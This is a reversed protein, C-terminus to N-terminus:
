LWVKFGNIVLWCLQCMNDGCLLVCTVKREEYKVQINTVVPLHQIM